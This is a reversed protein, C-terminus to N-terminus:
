PFLFLKLINLLINPRNTLKQWNEGYGSYYFLVLPPWDAVSQSANCVPHGSLFKKGLVLRSIFVPILLQCM